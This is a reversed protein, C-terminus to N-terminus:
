KKVHKAHIKCGIFENYYKKESGYNRLIRMKSAIEPNNSTVAGDDGLAGLNKGQYFSWAAADGHTSVRKGKYKAGHCQAADELVKLDYKKAIELIPDLDAPQNVM